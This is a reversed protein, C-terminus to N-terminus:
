SAATGPTYRDAVVCDPRDYAPANVKKSVPTLTLGSAPYPKLLGVLRTRDARADLWGAEGDRDLIVPMREHIPALAENAATTVITLSRRERGDPARWLDWLGAMAFLAGDARTIWLPSKDKRWEYFGDAVVLCRRKKFPERFAPKDELTEARANICSYALKEDKAWYPVLGWKFLRLKRGGDDVVAPVLDGPPVNYRPPLPAGVEDLAGFRELLVSKEKTRTM